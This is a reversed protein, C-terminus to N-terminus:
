IKLRQRAEAKALLSELRMEELSELRLDAQELPLRRTLVNPIAVCYMGANKAAAVGNPSDELAIAQSAPVGLGACASLYLEPDPKTKKVDDSARIVQFYEILGLRELHMTVWSCPSSSALGVKLGLRRADKLYAEIGPLIPRELILETERQLRKRLADEPIAHGACRELSKKPNFGGNATGIISGWDEFSLQCGFQQYLERWSLYIPEETELILGDFDFVLAHIM